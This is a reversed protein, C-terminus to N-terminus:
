GFILVEGFAGGTCLFDDGMSLMEFDAFSAVRNDSRVNCGARIAVAVAEIRITFVDNGM